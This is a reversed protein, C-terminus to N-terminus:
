YPKPNLTQTLTGAPPYGGAPARRDTGLLIVSLDRFSAHRIHDMIVSFWQFRFRLQRVSLGLQRVRLGCRCLLLFTSVGPRPFPLNVHIVDPRPYAELRVPM